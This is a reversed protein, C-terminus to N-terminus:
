SASGRCRMTLILTTTTTINRKLNVWAHNVDKAQGGNADDDHHDENHDDYEVHKGDKWVSHEPRHQLPANRLPLYQGKNM